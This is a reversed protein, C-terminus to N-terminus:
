DPMGARRLGAYVREQQRLFEPANSAEQTRMRGLTVGPYLQPFRAVQARAEDLRGSLALASALYLHAYPAPSADTSGHALSQVAAEDQGLHLLAMGEYTHWRVMRPDGPSLRMAQRVSELAEQARGLHLLAIGRIALGFANKPHLEIARDLMKLALAPRGEEIYVFGRTILATDSTPALDVSREAAEVARQLKRTREPSFRVDHLYTFALISWAAALQDDLQLAEQLLAQVHRQRDAETTAPPGRMLDRARSVLEAARVAGPNGDRRADAVRMVNILATTIGDRDERLQQSWGPGIRLEQQWLQVATSADAMRVTLVPQTEDMRLVGQVVYRVNLKAGLSRVDVQQGKFASATSPAVVTLRGRGFTDTISETMAEATRDHGPDGTQNVIPLVVFSRPPASASSPPSAPWSRWGLTGAVVLALLGIMAAKRWRAPAPRDAAFAYGLRPVTRVWDRGPEGLAQRIEKVCQVLSDETVIADPWVAQMLEDKGVTRGAHQVLYALVTATRPRLRARHGGLVLEGRLPDFLGHGVQLTREGPANM